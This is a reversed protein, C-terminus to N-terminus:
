KHIVASSWCPWDGKTGQIPHLLSASLALFLKFALFVLCFADKAASLDSSKQCTQKCFLMKAPITQYKLCDCLDVSICVFCRRLAIENHNQFPSIAKSAEAICFFQPNGSRITEFRTTQLTKRPLSEKAGKQARRLARKRSKRKGGKAACTLRVCAETHASLGM